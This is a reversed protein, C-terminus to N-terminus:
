RRRRGLPSCRVAMSCIGRPPATREGDPVAVVVFDVVDEDEAAEEVVEEVLLLLLLLFGITM